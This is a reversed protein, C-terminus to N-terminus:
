YDRLHQLPTVNYLICVVSTLHQIPSCRKYNNCVFPMHAGVTYNIYFVPSYNDNSQYKLAKEM